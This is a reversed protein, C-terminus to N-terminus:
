SVAKEFVELMIKERTLFEFNPKWNEHGPGGQKRGSLFDDKNCQNFYQEWFMPLIQTDGYLEKCIRSACRIVREVERRRREIGVRTAATLLGKPKALIANYAAMADDTVESIRRLKEPSWTEPNAPPTPAPVKAAKPKPASKPKPEPPPAEMVPVAPLLAVDTAPDPKRAWRSLAARSRVDSLSGGQKPDQSM